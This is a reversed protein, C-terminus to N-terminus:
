KTLRQHMKTEEQFHKKKTEDKGTEIKGYTFIPFPQQTISDLPRDLSSKLLLIHVGPDAWCVFTYPINRNMHQMNKPKDYVCCSIVQAQVAKMEQPRDWQQDIISFTTQSSLFAPLVKQICELYDLFIQDFPSFIWVIPPVCFVKAMSIKDIALSYLYYSELWVPSSTKALQTQLYTIKNLVQLYCNLM